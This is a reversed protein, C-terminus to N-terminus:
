LKLPAEGKEKKSDVITSLLNDNGGADDNSSSSTLTGMEIQVSSTSNSGQLNSGSSRVKSLM